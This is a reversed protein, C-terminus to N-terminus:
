FDIDRGGRANNKNKIREIEERPIRVLTGLKYTRIEGNRILKKVMSQSCNFQQAAGKITYDSFTM